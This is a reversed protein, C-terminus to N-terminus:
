LHGMLARYAHVFAPWIGQLNALIIGAVGSPLRRVQAAEQAFDDKAKLVIALTYLQKAERLAFALLQQGGSTCAAATSPARM